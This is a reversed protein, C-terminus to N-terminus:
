APDLGPPIASTAPHCAIVKFLEGMEAPGTLRHYAARHSALAPGSLSRGLVETRADIGLRQLFQGQSTMATCAAGATRFASALAEFDVHATLDAAGPTALPDVPHHNRVAQFTDGLSHWGGYDIIYAVGGCSAVRRAIQTAMIPLAPCIEVVDGLRTDALRRELGPYPAAPTLGFALKGADLGVRRESWGDPAREFQRIPLADFFENAVLFLPAQPLTDLSDHWTVHAHRLREAQIKRLTPSAEILHVSAAARMGPVKAIARLIDAMLTGRGPGIEALVMASPAGQDLWSQAVALGLLEGFMQSIEPATTFDGAQGFPDRTVYYGHRPHLLCAAMYDHLGMPGDAAIQAALIRFLATL